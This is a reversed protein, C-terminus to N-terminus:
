LAQLFNVLDTKETATLGIAFRKDYFNVVDFLTASSGDSFFPEHAALARLSPVTRAGVDKCKGTILALGPDNTVVSDGANPFIFGNEDAPTTNPDDEINCTIRFQPLDAAPAAGNFAQAHGAVGIDRQSQPLVDGGAGVVNHCTACTNGPAPNGVVDNFGAVDSITFRKTNFILQGRAISQRAATKNGDTTVWADYEKFVPPGSFGGFQGPAIGSLAEPGGTAFAATLLGAHRDRYQASFINTEFQVIQNQQEQTPPTLAQAHGLTASVAQTFLTPERGDWMINGSNGGPGPFATTTKFNMNTSILPRRFVSVIRTGDPLSNYDPDTNCTTPDKVVSITYEANTRVPLPIRILGKNILLSHADRFAKMGKGKRGGYLSGSTEAATVQNPCNAGDVPAFIPDKGRTAMLRKKINRVSVSMGSPPQHCTACSRGNTGLTQFFANKATETAGNPQYTGIRGSPDSDIELKPVYPPIGGQNYIRAPLPARMLSLYSKRFYAPTNGPLNDKLTAETESYPPPAATVVSTTETFGGEVAVADASWGQQPISMLCAGSFLTCTIIHRSRRPHPYLIM